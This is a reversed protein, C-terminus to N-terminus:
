IWDMERGKVHRVEPWFEKELIKERSLLLVINLEFSKIFNPITHIFFTENKRGASGVCIISRLTM